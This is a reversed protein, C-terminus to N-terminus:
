RSKEMNGEQYNRMNTYGEVIINTADGLLRPSVILFLSSLIALIIVIIIQLRYSQMHKILRHLTGKFDKARDTASGMRTPGIVRRSRESSNKGKNM